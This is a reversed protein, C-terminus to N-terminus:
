PQIAWMLRYICLAGCSLILTVIAIGYWGIQLRRRPRVLPAPRDAIFIRETPLVREAPLAPAAALVIAAPLALAKRTLTDPATIIGQSNELSKDLLQAM